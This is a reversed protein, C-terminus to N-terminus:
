KNRGYAHGNGQGSDAAATSVSSSAAANSTASANSAAAVSSGNNGANAAGSAGTPVTDATTGGATTIGNAASASNNSVGYANGKGNGAAAIEARSNSGMAKGNAQEPLTKSAASATTAATTTETAVTMSNRQYNSVVQGLNKEQVLGESQMQKFVNGWGTDGKAAAIQDLTLPDSSSDAPLTQADMLSRAIKKNGTSLNDFSGEIDAPTETMATDATEGTMNGETADEPAESVAADAPIGAEAAVTETIPQHTARAHSSVVQGLNKAEILGEAKMQKFVNGWGTESRMTAIDELSWPQTTGDAPLTQADMLSRAIMKNGAALEDFSNATTTTETDTTTDTASQALVAPSLMLSAMVSITVLRQM